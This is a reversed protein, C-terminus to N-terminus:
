ESARPSLVLTRRNEDTLYRSVVSAVDAASVDAFAKALQSMTEGYQYEVIGWSVGLQLLMYTETVHEPKQQMLTAMDPPTSLEKSLSQAIMPVQPNNESQKLPNMLQRIRQKVKEIDAEPKLSASVYFYVQEPTVLDVGCYTHGTTEKLRDDQMYALRLLVSAVYLAPYDENEPRPITYTEVYHTVNVGWTVSQDKAFEPSVTPHPLTKKPLHIAGLQKEMTDKLTDPDVGGIVCLLVRDAQVLHQDRYEQLESLQASQINKRMTIDTEGHRFVQNWAAHALKHTALNEEIYGFEALANPVAKALSEASFPLGSLWKAHRDLGQTWTDTNGRFELRINDAMTEASSTKYDFPGSTRISLRMILNSWQAKAKGDNVLGLPLYSFIGVDKSNEVHLNVVRIGNSLTFRTVKPQGNSAAIMPFDESANPPSVEESVQSGTSNSKDLADIRGVQSRVTPKADTDLITLAEIIEIAPESQAEFSYPRQFRALYQNSMGLLLIVLVTAASFAMWPLLPKGSPAPVPNIDAVQRMINELISNPLQLGGFTDNILLEESAKLRERARKLRSTITNVSVGLFKGIEKATMEGLYYLTVVTRESEPLKELLRKVIEYRFEAAETERQELVYREYTLKDIAKVAMNELSQQAPKRKRMWDICLRNAIVYLWGAFQNPDKLTSLKKYAQLFTDQTIEEAYHFDGIKRWALAHVSKQYKQVLTGFAEDDGSLISHILQVDDKEM